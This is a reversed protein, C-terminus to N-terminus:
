VRERCSARGIQRGFSRFLFLLLAKEALQFSKKATHKMVLYPDSPCQRSYGERWSNKFVIRCCLRKYQKCRYFYMDGSSLLCGTGGPVGAGGATGGDCCSTTLN